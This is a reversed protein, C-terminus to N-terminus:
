RKFTFNAYIGNHDSYKGRIINILEYQNINLKGPKYYIVDPSIQFISTHHESYLKDCNDNCIIEYGKNQLLKYIYKNWTDIADTDFGKERLFEIQKKNKNGLFYEFDSNFDGLIIDVNNDIMIKIQECKKKRIQILKKIKNYFIILNGQIDTINIPSGVQRM